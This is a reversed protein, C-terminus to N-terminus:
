EVDRVETVLIQDLAFREHGTAATHREAAQARKRRSPEVADWDCNLCRARDDTTVSEAGTGEYWYSTPDNTM